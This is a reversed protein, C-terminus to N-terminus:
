YNHREDDIITNGNTVGSRFVVNKPIMPHFIKFSKIQVYININYINQVFIKLPQDPPIVTFLLSASPPM